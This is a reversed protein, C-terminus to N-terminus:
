ASRAVTPEVATAPKRFVVVASPFPAGSKAEGFRLRGRLFRVEASACYDHWWATDVRAPVLCVVIEAEGSQVSESAKQVWRRIERGYPPNCWVRGTWPQRLGDQERDYYRPCLANDKTACVDVTFGGFERNLEDFLDQPTAWECSASSFHVSHKPSPPPKGADNEELWKDLPTQEGWSPGVSVEVEVPVPDLLPAMADIMATRLWATADGVQDAACEIVLEDHVALVPFADLCQDRREWLLALTEKMGDGATGQVIYNACTTSRIKIPNIRVRRGIL